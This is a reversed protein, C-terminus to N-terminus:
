LRGLLRQGALAVAVTGAASVAFVASPDMRAVMVSAVVAGLSSALLAAMRGTIGVRAQEHSRAVTQREGILLTVFLLGSAEVLAFAVTGQWVNTSLALLVSGAASVLLAGRLANAAGFRRHVLPASLGGVLGAGGGIALMWGTQPGGAGLESRAFVVLLAYIMNVTLNWAMGVMTLLRLMPQRAVLTLGSLLSGEGAAAHEDGPGLDLRISSILVLALLFGAAQVWLADEAGLLGILAGGVAPGILLGLSWVFSLAAQGEVFHGEGVLRAIAGFAAADVFVRGATVGLGAAYILALPLQDAEVGAVVVLPIVLAALLQCTVGLEMVRRRPRRDGIDGAPLGLLVYPVTGVLFAAGAEAGSGGADLVLWPLVVSSLGAGLSDMLQAVLFRRGDGSSLIVNSV